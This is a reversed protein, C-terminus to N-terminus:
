AADVGAVELVPLNHPIIPRTLSMSIDSSPLFRKSFTGGKKPQRCLRVAKM